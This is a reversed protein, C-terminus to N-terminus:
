PEAMTERREYKVTSRTSYIHTSFGKKELVFLVRRPPNNLYRSLEGKLEDVQLEIKKTTANEDKNLM